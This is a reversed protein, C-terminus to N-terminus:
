QGGSMAEGRDRNEKDIAAFAAGADRIAAQTATDVNAFTKLATRGEQSYLVSELGYSNVLRFFTRALFVEHMGVVTAAIEHGGVPAGAANPIPEFNRIRRLNASM